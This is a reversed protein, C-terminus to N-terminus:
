PQVEHVNVNAQPFLRSVADHMALWAGAAALFTVIVGLSIGRAIRAAAGSSPHVVLVTADDSSGRERAFEVLRACREGLPASARLVRAIDSAAAHRHVGDSCLVLMEGASLAVKRVNPADVAGNGVMRAPDDPCGGSPSRENLHRYTDDTTLLETGDARSARLRYVRCDGVWAVLWQSRRANVAVCLAVTAAGPTSTRRAISRAIERDAELIASRVADAGVRGHGLVAHVHAVLERSACSALAGSGVGDAVVFLGANGDLPSHEDENVAHRRGRSSAVAAHVRAWRTATVAERVLAAGCAIPGSTPTPVRTAEVNTKM